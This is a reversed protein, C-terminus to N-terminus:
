ARGGLQRDRSSRRQRGHHAVAARGASCNDTRPEVREIVGEEGKGTVQPTLTFCVRDGVIVPSRGDIKRTRLIRRITCPRIHTGDDVDAFLGRVAIVVGRASEAAHLDDDGVIITRHRSLNGKAVVREGQPSDAGRAGTASATPGTRTGPDSAATGGFRCAFRKGQKSPKKGPAHEDVSM